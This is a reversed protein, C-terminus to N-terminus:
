FNKESKEPLCRLTVNATKKESKGFLKKNVLFNRCTRQVVSLVQFSEGVKLM